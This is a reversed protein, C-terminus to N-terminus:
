IFNLNKLNFIKIVCKKRSKYTAIKLYFHTSITKLKNNIKVKEQAKLSLFYQIQTM